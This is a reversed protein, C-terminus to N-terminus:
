YYAIEFRYKKLNVGTNQLPNLGPKKLAKVRNKYQVKLMWDVRHIQATKECTNM